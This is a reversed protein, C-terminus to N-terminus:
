ERAHNRVPPRGARRGGGGLLCLPRSRSSPHIARSPLPRKPTKGDLVFQTMSSQLLATYSRRRLGRRSRQDLIRIRVACRPDAKRATFLWRLNHVHYFLTRFLFITKQAFIFFFISHISERPPSSPSDAHLNWPRTPSGVARAGVPWLLWVVLRPGGLIDRGARPFPFPSPCRPLGPKEPRELVNLVGSIKGGDRERRAGAGNGERGASRLAEDIREEKRGGRHRGDIV